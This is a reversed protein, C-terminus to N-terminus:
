VRAEIAKWLERNGQASMASFSIISDIGLVERITALSKKIRNSSVKDMKTAVVQLPIRLGRLWEVMVQDLETPRHRGDVIAVALCLRPSEILFEEIMPGWELKLRAPVKAYGYGPLDVFLYRDDVEFFNIVRTRGPTSSTRAM